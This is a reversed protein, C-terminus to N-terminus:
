PGGKMRKWSGTSYCWVEWQKAQPPPRQDKAVAEQKQQDDEPANDDLDPRDQHVDERDARRVSQEDQHELM